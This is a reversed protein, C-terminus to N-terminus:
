EGVAGSRHALDQCLAPQNAGGYPRVDGDGGLPGGREWSATNIRCGRDEPGCGEPSLRWRSAFGTACGSEQAALALAAQALPMHHAKLAPLMSM